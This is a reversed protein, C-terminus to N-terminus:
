GARHKRHSVVCFVADWYVPVLRWGPNAAFDIPAGLISDATSAPRCNAGSRAFYASIFLVISRVAEPKVTVSATNQPNERSGV